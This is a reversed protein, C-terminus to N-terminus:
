KGIWNVLLREMTEITTSRGKLSKINSVSSGFAGSIDRFKELKERRKFIGHVTSTSIGFDKCIQARKEGNELRRLIELQDQIVLRQRKEKVSSNAVTDM